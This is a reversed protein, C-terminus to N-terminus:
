AQKRLKEFEQTQTNESEEIIAEMVRRKLDLYEVSSMSELDRPRPLNINFEIKLRGPRATMVAIRDALIIAEDVDHTIFLVSSRDEKWIDILLKQMIIRTQADLAGFPEDMLLLDPRNILARALAVRQQMGGSLKYSRYHEFGTLGVSDLYHYARNEADKTGQGRMRPGFTVNSLVDLWPFLSPKQFVVGTRDSPGTVQHGDISIQGTSPTDLGAVQRLLTSKGCGSTGVIAVFEGPSINLSFGDLAEIEGEKSFFTKSVNEIKVSAKHKVTPITM